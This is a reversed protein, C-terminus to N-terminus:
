LSARSSAHLAAANIASTAFAWDPILVSSSATSATWSTRWSPLKAACELCWRRISDACHCVIKCYYHIFRQQQWSSVGLGAVRSTTLYGRRHSNPQAKVTWGLTFVHLRSGQKELKAIGEFSAIVSRTDDGPFLTQLMLWRRTFHGIIGHLSPSLSPTDPRTTSTYTM